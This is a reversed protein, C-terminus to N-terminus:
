TQEFSTLMEKFSGRKNNVSCRNGRQSRNISWIYKSLAIPTTLSNRGKGEMTRNWKVFPCGSDNIRYLFELLCSCDMYSRVARLIYFNGIYLYNEPRVVLVKLCLM